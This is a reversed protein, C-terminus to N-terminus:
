ESEEEEENRYHNFISRPKEGQGDSLLEQQRLAVYNRIEKPIAYYGEGMWEKLSIGYPVNMYRHLRRVREMVEGPAPPYAKDEGLYCKLGVAAEREDVDKFVEQWLLVANEADARSINRYFLPYAAKIISLMKLAGQRDM